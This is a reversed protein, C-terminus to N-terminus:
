INIINGSSTTYESNSNYITTNGGARVNTVSVGKAFCNYLYMITDGEIAYFDANLLTETSAISDFANCNINISETNNQTDGVNTGKNNFYNGNIRIVKSGNHATSGNNSNDDTGRGNNSGICNIEIGQAGLGNLSSYNFGDKKSYCAECNLFYANAGFINVANETGAHGGYLFKCDKAYVTPVYTTNNEISLCAVNGGICILNELYVSINATATHVYLNENNTKLTVATNSNDVITGNNIYVTSGDTYWSNKNQSVDQISSLRTMRAEIGSRIARIDIVDDINTRSAEYVNPYVSNQTYSLEDSMTLVCRGEGIINLNKTIPESHPAQYTRQYIGETLIITSNDTAHAIAYRLTQWPHERSLGDNDTNSGNKAVYYTNGGTRKYNEIRADVKYNKKSNSEYITIRNFFNNLFSSPKEFLHYYNYQEERIDNLKQDELSNIDTEAQTMRGGLSSIDTEAQTMRGKLDTIDNKNTTVQQNLEGFIEQNIIEELTGDQVMADLKTNVEEQLNLNDFYDEVYQVLEKFKEQLEGLANANNNFKPILEDRIFKMIEELQEEYTLSIKYSTPLIGITYYFEPFERLTNKNILENAM